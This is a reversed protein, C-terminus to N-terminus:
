CVCADSLSPIHGMLNVPPSKATCVDYISCYLGQHHLHIGGHPRKICDTSLSFMLHMLGNYTYCHATKCCIKSGPLLHRSRLLSLTQVVWLGTAYNNRMLYQKNHLVTHTMSDPCHTQNCANGCGRWCLMPSVAKHHGGQRWVIPIKWCQQLRMPGDGYRSGVPHFM